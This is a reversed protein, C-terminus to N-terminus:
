FRLNFKPSDFGTQSQAPAQARGYGLEKVPCLSGCIGYAGSLCLLNFIGDLCLVFFGL